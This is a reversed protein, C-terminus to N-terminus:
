LQGVVTWNLQIDKLTSDFENKVVVGIFIVFCGAVFSGVGYNPKVNMLTGDTNVYLADGVSFSTTVNEVRGVAIVGGTSAPPMSVSTLGLFRSVSNEDTVDVSVIQGNTNTSVPFGIPLTTGSANVYNAQIQRSSGKFSTGTASPNYGM